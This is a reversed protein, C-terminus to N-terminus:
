FTYVRGEELIRPAPNTMGALEALIEDRFQPKIHYVYVPVHCGLKALEQELTRPTLHGSLDAIEQLRNPFSTEVTLARLRPVTRAWRWIEDTPGTDGVHLVTGDGDEVFYGVCEVPHNVRVATITFGELEFPEGEPIPRFQMTPQASSPIKAFDPWLIDNMLHRQVGDLTPAIAHVTVPDRRAGFVNDALTALGGAHDLHSHTLLIHDIRVQAALPLVSTVAGTDILLREEVLFSSLHFGPAEGGSCGLVHFKM